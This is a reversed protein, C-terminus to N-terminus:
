CIDLSVLLMLSFTSCYKIEPDNNIPLVRERIRPRHEDATKPPKQPQPQLRQSVPFPFGVRFPLLAILVPSTISILSFIARFM